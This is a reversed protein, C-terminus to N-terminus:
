RGARRLQGLLGGIQEHVEDTQRIVMARGPYWYYITGLGGNVDWSEPRIVSQILEILEEGHDPARFAGGGLAPTGAAAVSDAAAAGPSGKEAGSAGAPEDRGQLKALRKQHAIRVAIQDSLKTLRTRVKNRFYRCQSRSLRQDAEIERYLTIFERAAADAEADTPKAWRRLAARVAERLEPGERPTAEAEEKAPAPTDATAEVHHSVAASASPVTEAGKSPPAGLAIMALLMSCM